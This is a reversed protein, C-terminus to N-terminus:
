ILVERDTVVTELNTDSTNKDCKMMSSKIEAFLKEMEWTEDPELTEKEPIIAKTLIKMDIENDLIQFASQKMLDSDLERYSLLETTLTAPAAIDYEM